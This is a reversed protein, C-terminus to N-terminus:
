KDQKSDHNKQEHAQEYHSGDGENSVKAKALLWQKKIFFLLLGIAIVVMIAIVPFFGTPLTGFNQLDVGNMGYIGAILTLPLLIVTFITLLRMTDNIQLSVKAVYLERISNITDQFSEVFDILQSIDDNVM